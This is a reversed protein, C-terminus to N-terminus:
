EPQDIKNQTGTQDPTQEKTNTNANPVANHDVEKLLKTVNDIEQKILKLEEKSKNLDKDKLHMILNMSRVNETAQETELRYAQYLKSFLAGIQDLSADWVKFKNISYLLKAMNEKLKTLMLQKYQDPDLERVHVVEDLVSMDDVLKIAEEIKRRLLESMEITGLVRNVIGDSVCLARAIKTKPMGTKRLKYIYEGVEKDTDPLVKNLETHEDEDMEILATLQKALHFNYKKPRGSRGKKGAM